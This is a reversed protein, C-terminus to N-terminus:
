RFVLPDGEAGDRASVTVDRRLAAAVGLACWACNAWWGRGDDASVWFSTPRNVTLNSPENKGSETPPGCPL